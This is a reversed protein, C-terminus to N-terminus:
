NDRAIRRQENMAAAPRKSGQYPLSVGIAHFRWVFEKNNAHIRALTFNNNAHIKLRALIHVAKDPDRRSMGILVGIFIDDATEDFSMERRHHSMNPDSMEEDSTKM